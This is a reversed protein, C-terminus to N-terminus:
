TPVPEPRSPKLPCGEPVFIQIGTMLESRQSETLETRQQVLDHKEHWLRQYDAYTMRGSIALDTAETMIDNATRAM